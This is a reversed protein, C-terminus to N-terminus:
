SQPSSIPWVGQKNSTAITITYETQKEKVPEVTFIASTSSRNYVTTLGVNRELTTESTTTRDHLM